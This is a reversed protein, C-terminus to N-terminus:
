EGAKITVEPVGDTYNVTYTKDKYTVEFNGGVVGNTTKVTGKTVTWGGTSPFLSTLIDNNSTFDLEKGNVYYEIDAKGQLNGAYDRIMAMAAEDRAQTASNFIGGDALVYTITVGALILLVVITVVLAILTIGNENTKKM